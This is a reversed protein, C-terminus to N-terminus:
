RCIREEFLRTNGDTGKGKGVDKEVDDKWMKIPEDFGAGFSEFMGNTSKYSM